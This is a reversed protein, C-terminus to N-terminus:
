HKHQHPSDQRLTSPQQSILTTATLPQPPQLWKKFYSLSTQPARFCNCYYCWLDSIMYWWLLCLSLWFTLINHSNGFHSGSVCLSRICNSFHLQYVQKVFPQWLGEIQLVHLIQLTCYLSACYFYALHAM